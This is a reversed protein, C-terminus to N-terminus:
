EFSAIATAEDDFSELIEGLNAIAILTRVKPNLNVLKLVGSASQAHRHGFLLAGLGSSDVYEVKALDILVHRASEQEFIRLLETKFESSVSSDLRPEAPRIVLVDGNKEESLKM